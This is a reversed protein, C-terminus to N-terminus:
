DDRGRRDYWGISTIHVATGADSNLLRYRIQRSTNTRVRLYSGAQGAGGLSPGHSPNGPAIDNVALDTVIANIIAGSSTIKFTGVWQANIGDPTGFLTVTVATTGPNSQSYDVFPDLRQFFDGSQIFRTWQSASDTVGSGIRRKLTYNTPMTPATASLSFLVDVVQTDPRKILFFHYWTNIAISGTDLGGNGSGVAWSSTTKGISSSLTMSDTNGSDTAQGVAITMTASAGATSMTLGALYSRLLSGGSVFSLVGSGNTQLFQGSTGDTAPLTWIGRLVLQNSTNLELLPITDTGAQNVGRYARNNPIVIDGSAASTNITTFVSFIATSTLQAYQTAGTGNRFLLNGGFDIAGIASIVIRGNGSGTDLLQLWSNAGQTVNGTLTSAGTVGLTTSITAAGTVALTGTLNMGNTGTILGGITAPQGTVILAGGSINVQGGITAGVSATFAGQVQAAGTTLLTTFRGTGATAAGINVNEIANGGGTVTGTLTVAGLTKNTLTETGALTALTGTVPPLTLTVAAQGALTIAFAGTLAFNGALALTGVTNSLGTGTGNVVVATGALGSFQPLKDFAATIAVFESRAPASAGPAGTAPYGTHNYYPNAM